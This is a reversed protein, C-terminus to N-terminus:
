QHHNDDNGHNHDDNNFVPHTRYYMSRAEILARRREAQCRKFTYYSLGYRYIINIVFFGTVFKIFFLIFEWYLKLLKM